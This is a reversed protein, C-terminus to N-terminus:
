GKTVKTVVGKNVTFNLRDPRMDRTVPLSKGDRMIIRHRIKHKTALKQAKEITLGVFDKPEPKQHSEFPMIQAPPQSYQQPAAQAPYPACSVLVFILAIASFIFTGQM